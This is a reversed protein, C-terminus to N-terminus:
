IRDHNKIYNQLIANDFDSGAKLKRSVRELHQREYLEEKICLEELM